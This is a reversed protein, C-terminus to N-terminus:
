YAQSSVAMRLAQAASSLSYVNYVTNGFTWYLHSFQNSPTNKVWMMGHTEPLLHTHLYAVIQAALAVDSSSSGAEVELTWLGEHWRVLGMENYLRGAIGNGLSIRQSTMGAFHPPESSQEIYGLATPNTTYTQAGFSAIEEQNAQYLSVTYQAPEVQVDTQVGSWDHPSLLFDRPAALSTGVHPNDALTTMAQSIIPPFVEEPTGVYPRMTVAMRLASVAHHYDWDTYVIRGVAYSLATHQGDGADVVTVMGHTEPLLYKHLYSIMPEATAKAAAVSMDQVQFFWDGEHWEVIVDDFKSFVTSWIGLGLYLRGARFGQGQPSIYGGPTSGTHASVVVQQLAQTSTAYQKAGFGGIVQALGTNPPQFLAPSNVGLPTTALQLAVQYQDATASVTAALYQRSTDNDNGAFLPAALAIDSRMKVYQMAQSVVPNFASTTITRRADSAAHAALAPVFTGVCLVCVAMVNRVAKTWKM